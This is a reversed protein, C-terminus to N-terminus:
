ALFKRAQAIVARASQEVTMPPEPGGIRNAFNRGDETQVWGPHIVLVVMKNEENHIKKAAYHVGAKSVGYGLTPMGLQMAGARGLISGIIVFKPEPSAKLLPLLTQYLSSLLLHSLTPTSTTNSAM